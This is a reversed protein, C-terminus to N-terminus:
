MIKNTKNSMTYKKSNLLKIKNSFSICANTHEKLKFKNDKLEKNAIQKRHTLFNKVVGSLGTIKHPSIQKGLGWSYCNCKVFSLFKKQM